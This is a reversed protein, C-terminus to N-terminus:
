WIEATLHRVSAVKDGGGGGGQRNLQAELELLRLRRTYGVLGDYLRVLCADAASGSVGLAALVIRDIEQRVADRLEPPWLSESVEHEAVYRRAEEFSLSMQPLCLM